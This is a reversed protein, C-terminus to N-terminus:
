YYTLTRYMLERSQILSRSKGDSESVIRKTWNGKADFELYQFFEAGDPKDTKVDYFVTETENQKADYIHIMKQNLKGDADYVLEETQNDKANYVYRLWLKGDTQYWAEERVNGADDFKYKLKYTYRSDPNASKEPADIKATIRNPSDVKEYISIKDGDLLQYRVSDFLDGSRYDYYKWTLRSGKADYTIESERRRNIEGSKKSINRYDARETLVSKVAGKLGDFERDTQRKQAFVSFSLLILFLVTVAFSKM